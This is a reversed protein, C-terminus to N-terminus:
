PCENADLFVLAAALSLLRAHPRMGKMALIEPRARSAMGNSMAPQETM